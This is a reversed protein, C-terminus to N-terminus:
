RTERHAREVATALDDVARSDGGLTRRIEDVVAGRRRAASWRACADLVALLSWAAAEGQEQSGGHDAVVRFIALWRRGRRTDPLGIEPVLLRRTV